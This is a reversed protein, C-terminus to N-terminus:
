GGGEGRCPDGGGGGPLPLWPSGMAEYVIKKKTALLLM